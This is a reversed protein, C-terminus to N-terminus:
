RGALHILRELPSAGQLKFWTYAYMVDKQMRPAYFECALEVHQEDLGPDVGITMLNDVSANAYNPKAAM